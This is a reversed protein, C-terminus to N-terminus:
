PSSTRMLRTFAADGRLPPREELEAFISPAVGLEIARAVSRIAGEREGCEAYAFALFQHVQGLPPDDDRIGDAISVASDCEGAESAYQALLARADHDRPSVRVHRLQLEYAIRYEARAEEELGTADFVSALNGRLDAREPALEVARAFYEEARSLRDSRDSFYYATGINSALVPDLIPEAIEEFASLAAEYDGQRLMLAALRAQPTTVSAPALQSARHYADTAEDFRGLRVLLVGLSNWMAWDDSALRTAVRHFAIAEEMRDQYFQSWALLRYATAPRPLESLIEEVQEQAEKPRGKAILVQTLALRAEPLKGDLEIARRAADEATELHRVEHSGRFADVHAEALAAWARAFRDDIRVANELREIAIGRLEPTDRARDLLSLGEIYHNNARESSTSPARLRRRDAFSVPLELYRTVATVLQEQLGLLHETDGTFPEAWLVRGTSGDTISLEVRLSEASGLLNAEVFRDVGFSRALAAPDADGGAAVQARSLVHTGSLESLRSLLAVSLGQGLYDLEPSGTLNAFPLVAVGLTGAEASSRRLLWLVAAVAILLLLGSTLLVRRRGFRSPVRPLASSIEDPSGLGLAARAGRLDALLEDASQYRRDPDRTLCKAVIGDLERPVGAVRSPRPTEDYAVAHLTAPGSDGTFPLEGTLCEYLVVGLAWLDARHDVPKGLAQEPAMYAFTGVTAGPRTMTADDLLKALGFDLIKVRGGRTRVVNAPKLDRHVIGHAHAERIGEGMQLLADFAEVVSLPGQRLTRKLTEGEYCPMAIYIEGEATAGIDYVPCLNPHDLASAARAEQMFRRKSEEDESVHAPLFKLAVTRGLRTDTARYVVGMGGSGLSEEIRYHAVNRGEM